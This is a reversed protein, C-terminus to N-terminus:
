SLSNARLLSTLVGAYFGGIAEIPLKAIVNSSNLICGSCETMFSEGLMM